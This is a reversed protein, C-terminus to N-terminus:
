KFGSGNETNDKPKSTKESEKEEQQNLKEKINNSTMELTMPHILSVQFHKIFKCGILSFFLMAGYVDSIMMKERFINARMDASVTEYDEIRRWKDNLAVILPRYLVAFIKHLNLSIDRSYEEIDIWEGVSMDSLKPVFGYDVGDITIIPKFQGETPLERTWLLAEAIRTIEGGPLRRIIDSDTDSLVAITDIVKQLNSSMQFSSIEMFKDLNVEAWSDPLTLTLKDEM